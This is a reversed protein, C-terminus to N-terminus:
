FPVDGKRPKKIQLNLRPVGKQTEAEWLSVEIDARGSGIGLEQLDILASGSWNPTGEKERNEVKWLTGRNPNHVWENRENYPM